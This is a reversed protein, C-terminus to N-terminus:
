PKELAKRAIRWKRSKAIGCEQCDEADKFSLLGELAARLRAVEKEKLDLAAGADRIAAKLETELRRVEAEKAALRKALNSAVGIMTDKAIKWGAAEERARRAENLLAVVEFTYLSGSPRVDMAESLAKLDEDSMRGPSPPPAPNCEPCNIPTGDAKVVGSGNCAWCVPPPAHRGQTECSEIHAPGKCVACVPPPATM